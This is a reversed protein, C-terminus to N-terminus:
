AAMSHAATRRHLMARARGGFHRILLPWHAPRRPDVLVVGAFQRRDRAWDQKYSDDGRGFDIGRVREENLFHRLMWATLATGPSLAKFAEDHALKLVGAVGQDVVWFQAAAPQEGIWM